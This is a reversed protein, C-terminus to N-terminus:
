WAALCTKLPRQGWKVLFDANKGRDLDQTNGNGPLIGDVINCGHKCPHKTNLAQLQSAGAKRPKM